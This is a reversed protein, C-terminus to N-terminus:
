VESEKILTLTGSRMKQYAHPIESLSGTNEEGSTNIQQQNKMERAKKIDIIKQRRQKESIRRKITGKNRKFWQKLQTPEDKDPDIGKVSKTVRFNVKLMDLTFYYGCSESNAKSAVKLQQKVWDPINKVRRCIEEDPYWIFKQNDEDSFMPCLPASCGDYFNCETRVNMSGDMLNDTIEMVSEM